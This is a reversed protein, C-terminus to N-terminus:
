VYNKSPSQLKKVARVSINVCGHALWIVPGSGPAFPLALAQGPRAMVCIGKIIINFFYWDNKLTFNQLKVHHIRRRRHPGTAASVKPATIPMVISLTFWSSNCQKIANRPLIWSCSYRRHQVHRFFTDMRVHVLWACIAHWIKWKLYDWKWQVSNSNINIKM